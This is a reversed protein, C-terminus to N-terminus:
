RGGCVCVKPTRAFSFRRFIPCTSQRVTQDDRHGVSLHFGQQSIAEVLVLQSPVISDNMELDDGETLRRAGSGNKVSKVRMSNTVAAIWSTRQMKPAERKLAAALDFSCFRRSGYEMRLKAIRIRKLMAQTDSLTNKALKVILRRAPDMASHQCSFKLTQYPVIPVTHLVM